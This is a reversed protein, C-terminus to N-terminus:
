RAARYLDAARSRLEDAQEYAEVQELEWAATELARAARRFADVRVAHPGRLANLHPARTVDGPRESMDMEFPNRELPQPRMEWGAPRGTPEGGWRANGLQGGGRIAQAESFPAPVGVVGSRGSGSPRSGSPVFGSPGTGSPGRNGSSGPGFGEQVAWGEVAPSATKPESSRPGGVGFPPPSGAGRAQEAREKMLEQLAAAFADPDGVGSGFRARLETLEQVMKSNVSDPDGSDHASGEQVSAEKEPAEQLPPSPMPTPVTVTTSSSESGNAPGSVPRADESTEQEEAISAVAVTPTQRVACGKVFVMTGGVVGTTDCSVGFFTTAALLVAISSSAIRGTIALRGFPKNTSMM